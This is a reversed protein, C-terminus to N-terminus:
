AQPVCDAEMERIRVIVRPNKPDVFFEDSIRAVWAQTDNPLKGCQVLGDLIFKAGTRINDVDRRRNPEVWSIELVVPKTFKPVQGAIAWQACESTAKKKIRHNHFRTSEMGWRVKLLDNLGPLRGPIVYTFTRM